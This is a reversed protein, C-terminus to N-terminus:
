NLIATLVTSIIIQVCVESMKERTTPTEEILFKVSFICAAIAPTMFVLVLLLYWIDNEDGQFALCAIVINYIALILVSHAIGQVGRRIPIVSCCQEGQYFV